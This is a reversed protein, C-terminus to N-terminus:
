RPCPWGTAGRGPSAGNIVGMALLLQNLGGVVPDYRGRWTLAAVVKPIIGPLLVLGTFVSRLRRIRNLLLAATLGISAFFSLM